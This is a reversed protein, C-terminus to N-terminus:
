RREQKIWKKWKRIFKGNLDFSQVRYDVMDIVFVEANYDPAQEKIAIGFPYYLKGDSKGYVGWEREFDGDSNFVRIKHNVMNAVFIEGNYVAVGWPNDPNENSQSKINTGM